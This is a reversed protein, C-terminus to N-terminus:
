TQAERDRSLSYGNKISSAICSFTRRCFATRDVVAISATPMLSSPWRSIRPSSIARLSVSCPHRRNM